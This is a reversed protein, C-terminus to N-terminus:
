DEGVEVRGYRRQFVATALLGVFVGFWLTSLRALLVAGVAKSRAAEVTLQGFDQYRPRLLKGLSLETAGLGGPLIIAVAGLVASTAYAFVGYSLSISGPLFGDALLWFGVCECGWSVVSIATPVLVERPALLVRTTEFSREVRPALGHVLPLRALLATTWRAFRRSGVLAIGALCLFLTGWFVWQLDPQTAIGGIAVLILYGLLDTIREAVVIPASEHIRVGCVRRLMWSKLVEGMKGPTVGMSFGSLYILLSTRRPVDISLLALYREWKLFRVLYNALSLGMAAPVTWWAIDRLSLALQEHDAWLLIGAYVLVGFLVGLILRRAM